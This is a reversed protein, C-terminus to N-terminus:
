EDYAKMFEGAIAESVSDLENTDILGSEEDILPSLSGNSTLHASIALPREAHRKEREIHYNLCALMYPSHTTFLMRCGSAKACEVMLDLVYKQAEPFLHAEPEEIILLQSLEDPNPYELLSLLLPLSEQQGSSSAQLPVNGWSTGIYDKSKLRFFDGDIVPRIRGNVKAREEKSMGSGFWDGAITKKAFEYFNGFQAMLPDIRKESALFAFLEESVTSYFSRSAPVFLVKPVTAFFEKREQSSQYYFYISATRRQKKNENEKLYNKFDKKINSGIKDLESNQSIKPRHGAFTREICISVDGLYYTAQFPKDYGLLNGFLLLFEGLQESKFARFDFDPSGVSNAYASIYMRGFYILKAIISKGTAQKGILAGIDTLAFSASRISLLNRIEVRENTDDFNKLM